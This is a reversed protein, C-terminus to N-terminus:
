VYLLLLLKVGAKNQCINNVNIKVYFCVTEKQVKIQM